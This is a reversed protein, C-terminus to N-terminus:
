RSQWDYIWDQRALLRQGGLAKMALNRALAAPGSRHYTQGLQMATRQV